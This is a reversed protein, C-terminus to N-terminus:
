TVFPLTFHVSIGMGANQEAWMKGGHAEILARSIALGMGLGSPKTTYFPQFLKKLTATDTVGKGSDCVTVQAMAPAGSFCRTTVTMTGANIGREQMSELGNRLLNVLVKQIQLGNAAVPQFGAALDPVIKFAGLHLDAKVFDLAELVSINIDVPESITEDKHLVTMLQRIVDGARQAQLACNGLVHNLKQPNRNGTQLMKLAVEAYSSIAALPQNLEHAIAAATQGALSLRSAQEMQDRRESLEKTKKYDTIDLNIGLMRYPQDNQDRLLGGRSHIWRYSGDKHRLRFEVEFVPQLGAIFNETAASVLPRDDPHLRCQWEEWRNLLENENFGIQWKWEPSLYVENTKLDWDWYGAKVEEIVLALRTETERLVAEARKLETIDLHTIIVGHLGQLVRTAHMLFWLEGAPTPCPYEMMFQQGQGDFLAELGKVAKHADPDGATSSRRCVDLYNAGVSVDSPSGGNEIAFREWPENVSTVVGLDDLVVVHEPLSNLVARVFAESARVAEAALKRETIDNVFSYYFQPKGESDTMLHVLLEIPVRTGNKRIYEKEYRVPVGTRQLEALKDREIEHWEPPTLVATRWDIRQLEEASYGTLEEFANNVLEMRGDPYGIGIPQSSIRILDALFKNEKQSARLTEETSKQEDIDFIHVVIGKVRGTSDRDPIYSAHVWRPKGNAYPIAQDFIVREGELARDLYPRVINWASEGIIERAEHGLILEETMCFWNEYTKNVRMYRFDTDLYSILAPTADMILRLESERDRLAAEAQKRETVDQIYGHWLISGDMERLPMSHGELWIEGKTPHNFLFSDRWPQLTRSSEAITEHIHGIDDPHIRAFVPSFDEAVADPSLGYISEFVPSAYPMCASGDPRLRFSCIVGPVTAAVKVLQEQLRLRDKLASDVRMRETVDRLIATFSKEGNIECRSTSAEIPFEEGSARLGKIAGFEGMKNGTKPTGGFASINLNHAPRFREPIFAEISEGIAKDATCGFMKEAASNFLLIRQDADITIIADMASDVIEAYRQRSEELVLENRKHATIDQTTGFGSLLKGKNSFELEARERVWKVEGAVILRHEIDYPEGRLGAQWMRDVYERDEPHVTSLFNEYTMPTGKPIGFIRHNEDSWRLENRQMNLRWSGIQGIAQAHDLDHRSEWLATTLGRHLSSTTIIVTSLICFGANLIFVDYPRSVWAPLLVLANVAILSLIMALLGPNRGLFFSTQIIAFFFLLFAAREGIVPIIRTVLTAIAVALVALGYRLLPHQSNFYLIVPQTKFRTIM